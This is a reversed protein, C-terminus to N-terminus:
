IYKQCTTFHSLHCSLHIVPRKAQFLDGTPDLVLRVICLKVILIKRCKDSFINCHIKYDYFLIYVM